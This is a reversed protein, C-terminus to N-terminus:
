PLLCLTPVGTQDELRKAKMDKEGAMLQSGEDCETRKM